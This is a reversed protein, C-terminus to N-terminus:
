LGNEYGWSMILHPFNDLASCSFLYNMENEQTASPKTGEKKFHLRQTIAISKQNNINSRIIVTKAKLEKLM